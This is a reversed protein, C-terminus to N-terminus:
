NGGHGCLRTHVEGSGTVMEFITGGDKGRQELWGWVETGYTLVSGALSDFLM